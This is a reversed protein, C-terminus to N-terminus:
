NCQHDSGLDIARGRGCLRGRKRQRSHCSIAIRFLQSFCGYTHLKPFDPKFILSSSLYFSSLVLTKALHYCERVLRGQLWINEIPNQEPANPAFRICTIKWKTPELGQNVSELYARVEDSRHYSAGDWLLAIQSM